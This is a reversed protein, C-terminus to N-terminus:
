ARKPTKQGSKDAVLALTGVPHASFLVMSANSPLPSITCNLLLGDKMKVDADWVARDRQHMVFERIDAWIPSADCSNKWDRTADVITMDVFSSDPDVRWMDRYAKNSHTLVGSPSFVAIAGELADLVGQSMELESRFRRTLSVEASIDEFLFAIAGDPHPRGNVRYTQGSSLSWTELYKGDAAQAMLEAIRDRWSSYDKPEPMM